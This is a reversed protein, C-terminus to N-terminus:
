SDGWGWRAFCDPCYVERIRCGVKRLTRCRWGIVYLNVRDRTTAPCSWCRVPEIGGPEEREVREQERRIRDEHNREFQAANM